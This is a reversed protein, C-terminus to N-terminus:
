RATTGRTGRIIIRQSGSVVNGGHFTIDPGKKHSHCTEKEKFGPVVQLKPNENLIDAHWKTETMPSIHLISEQHM